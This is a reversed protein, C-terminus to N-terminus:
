QPRPTAPPPQSTNTDSSVLVMRGNPDREFVQRQTESRDSGLTRVTEVVRRVVRMPENPASGGWNVTVYAIAGKKEYSVNELTVAAASSSM